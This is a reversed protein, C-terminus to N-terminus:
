VGVGRVHGGRASGAGGQAELWWGVAWSYGNVRRVGAGVGGNGLQGM